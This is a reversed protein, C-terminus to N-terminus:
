TGSRQQPEPLTRGIMVALGHREATTRRGLETLVYGIEMKRILRKQMLSQIALLPLFPRPRLAVAELTFRETVSLENWGM